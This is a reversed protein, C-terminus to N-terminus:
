SDMDQRLAALSVASDGTGRVMAETSSGAPDTTAGPEAAERSAAAAAADTSSSASSSASSLRPVHRSVGAARAPRAAAAARVLPSPRAPIEHVPPLQAPSAPSSPTQRLAAPAAPTVPRVAATIAPAALPRANLPTSNDSATNTPQPLHHTPLVVMLFPQQPPQALHPGFQFQQQQPQQLQLQQSQQQHQYHQVYQLSPAQPPPYVHWPPPHYANLRTDHQGDLSLAAAPPQSPSSTADGQQLFLPTASTPATHLPAAAPIPPSSPTLYPSASHGQQQQLQPPARPDYGYPMPPPPPPYQLVIPWVSPYAQLDPPVSMSPAVPTGQPQQQKQLQQQQQQQQPLSPEPTTYWLHPAAAASAALQTAAASSFPLYFAAPAAAPAAAPSAASSPGRYVTPPVAPSSPQSSASAPAAPAPVPPAPPPYYTTGHAVVPWPPTPLGWAHFIQQQQQQQPQPPQPEHSSPVTEVPQAVVHALPQPAAPPALVTTRASTSLMPEAPRPTSYIAPETHRRDHRSATDSAAAATTTTATATMTTPDHRSSGSPEHSRAPSERGESDAADGSRPVVERYQVKIIRDLWSSGNEEEIAIEAVKEDVFRVFAFAPRSTAGRPFRNWLQVSEIEGYRSFRRRLEEETVLEQNIKGVFISNLDVVREKDIKTAWDVTWLRNRRIALFAKIAHERSFFKAFGCGKSLGTEKDHLISLHEVPGHEELVGLIQEYTFHSGFKLFLTRNVKAQEIRIPRSDLLSGTAEQMARKADAIRYFQVFASPRTSLDRHVKVSFLPGWRVFFAHVGEYLEEDSRASNLNAVFLCAQPMIMSSDPVTQSPSSSPPSSSLRGTTAPPGPPSSLESPLSPLRMDIASSRGSIPPPALRRQPESGPASPAVTVASSTADTDPQRSPTQSPHTPLLAPVRLPSVGSTNLAPPETVDAGQPFTHAERVSGDDDRGDYKKHDYDVPTVEDDDDDDDVAVDEASSRSAEERLEEPDATLRDLLHKRRVVFVDDLSQRLIGVPKDPQASSQNARATGPSTTSTSSLAKQLGASPQPARSGPNVLQLATCRVLPFCRRLGVGQVLRKQRADDM